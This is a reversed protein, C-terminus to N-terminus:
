KDEEDLFINSLNIYSKLLYTSSKSENINNIDLIDGTNDFALQVDKKDTIKNTLIYKPYKQTLDPISLNLTGQIYHKNVYQFIKEAAKGDGFPNQVNKIKERWKNISQITNLLNLKLEPDFPNILKNIGCLIAEPRETNPRLTICPIKLTAAEEQIGGSDTIIGYSKRLINLFEFYGLPKLLRINSADVKRKLNFQELRLLTRPHIPFIVPTDFNILADIIKILIKPYDVTAPRHLTLVFFKDNKNLGIESNNTLNNTKSSNNELYQLVVDVITNGTMEIRSPDIGEIRLNQSALETPCFHLSACISAIRRNIEEPMTLDFSRIGAEIHGFPILKRQSALATAMVSNTDGEAYIIDPSIKGFLKLLEALIYGIQNEPQDKPLIFQYDPVPLNLEEYFIKSMEYDYHQGTDIITFKENQKELLHILPSVKIIEPRTGIVIAHHM